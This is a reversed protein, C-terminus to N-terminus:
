KPLEDDRECPQREGPPVPRGFLAEDTMGKCRPAATWRPFMWLFSGSSLPMTNFTLHCLLEYKIVKM